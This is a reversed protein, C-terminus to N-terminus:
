ARNAAEITQRYNWPFWNSPAKAVAQAHHELAMLYDFPNVGNLECTHILSMNIDGVRAGALTKYSLSNKRHRIATKLARETINNDLPAGPVSLFRTLPEWRKLMYRISEGLGSNPEVKKQDMQAQMWQHLQDMVPQSKEQHFALRQLPSLKREKAQAEFRYIERLSEIVQRSEEPFNESVDIFNRRAHLICNCLLTQFEQPENRSLADCMQLPQALDAARRRLLENLNEGAHNQGTFFLAVSIPGVQAIIGTTFIGKRPDPDQSAAMERRLSQVRMPTDDNYLLEAQAAVQILAEYVLEPTQSAAAMLQWQTSAALPVGFYSQWKDTRYMPQGAGFRQLNLMVGCSPDYKGPGAEPPAPATFLAGCLACRLRELEFVTASFIPQAIIRVIRAPTKLLYLKGKLCQPCLQGLHLKPHPVPQRPAGPYDQAAHRGHGKTKTPPPPDRDAGVSQPLVQATKETQKGFLMRRLRGLTTNKAELASVLWQFTRLVSELLRYTEAPVLAALKALLEELQATSLAVIEPATTKAM